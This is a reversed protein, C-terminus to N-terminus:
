ARHNVRYEKPTLGTTKKFVFRFYNADKYGAFAAIRSTSESTGSLLEKAKEIRKLTVYEIFTMDMRQSFLTSFYGPSVNVFAAVTNLSLNEDTFHSEIYGLASKLVDRGTTEEADKEETESGPNWNKALIKEYNEETIVQESYSMYRCTFFLGVQEYCNKLHSFRDTTGSICLLYDCGRYYESTLAEIEEVALRTYDKVVDTEGRVIICLTHNMWPTVLYQPHRMFFRMIDERCRFLKENEQGSKEFIDLLMVRYAPGDIRIGLKGAERYIEEVSFSGSFVEEFFRRRLFKEYEQMEERQRYIYDEKQKEGDLKQALELLAQTVARRTVPKTLYKEVGIEIAKRAYDFDDYGSLIFIRIDPMESKVVRCLSLGDMFPMKIDTILVDPHEKRIMPLAIEGDGAEGVFTFGYQEWPINDRLGERVISEDEVIFVKYM